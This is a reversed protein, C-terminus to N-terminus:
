PGGCSTVPLVKVFIKIATSYYIQINFYLHSWFNLESDKFNRANNSITEEKREIRIQQLFGPCPFIDRKVWGGTANMTVVVEKWMNESENYVLRRIMHVRYYSSSFFPTIFLYIFLYPLLILCHNSQQLGGLQQKHWKNKVANCRSVLHFVM